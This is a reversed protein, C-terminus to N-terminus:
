YILQFEPKMLLAWLLDAVGDPSLRGPRAPDSVARSAVTREAESPVRGLAQWFVRDVLARADTPASASSLPAAQGPPLLRGPNPATDFIFFRLSPNLTSGVESRLNAVDVAGRLRVFTRGELSYRLVSPNGM